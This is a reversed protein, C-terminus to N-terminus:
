RITQQKVDAELAPRSVEQGPSYIQGTLIFGLGQLIRRQREDSEKSIQEVLAAWLPLAPQLSSHKGKLEYGAQRHVSEPSEITQAAAIRERVSDSIAAVSNYAHQQQQSFTAEIDDVAVSEMLTKLRTAVDSLQQQVAAIARHNANVLEVNRRQSETWLAAAEQQRLDFLRKDAEEKTRQRAAAEAEKNQEFQIVAQKASEAEAMQKRIDDVTSM